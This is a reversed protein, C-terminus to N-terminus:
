LVPRRIDTRRWEAMLRCDDMPPESAPPPARTRRSELAELAELPSLLGRRSEPPDKEPSALCSEPPDM